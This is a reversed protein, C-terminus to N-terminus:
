SGASNTDVEGTSPSSSEKQGYRAEEVQDLRQQHKEADSVEM